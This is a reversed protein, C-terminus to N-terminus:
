PIHGVGAGTVNGDHREAESAFITTPPAIGGRDLGIASPPSVLDLVWRQNDGGHDTFQRVNGGNDQV